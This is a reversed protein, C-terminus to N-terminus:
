SCEAKISLEASKISAKYAAITANTTDTYQAKRSECEKLENEVKVKQQKKLM